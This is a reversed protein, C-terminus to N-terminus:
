QSWAFNNQHRIGGALKSIRDQLSVGKGYVKCRGRRIYTLVEEITEPRDDLLVYSLGITQPVHSDSGATKGLRNRQALELAQAVSRRFFFSNSNVVEVADIHKVIERMRRPPLPILYPHALVVLGGRGRCWEFVDFVPTGKAPVDDINLLLFHGYACRVEMGPIIMMRDSAYKRALTAGKLSHHDTIAMGSLGRKLAYKVAVKPETIADRSYTTHIHMDMKFREKLDM